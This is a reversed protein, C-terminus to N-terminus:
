GGKQLIGSVGHIISPITRFVALGFGAYLFGIIWPLVSDRIDSYWGFDFDIYGSQTLITYPIHFSLTSPVTINDFFNKFTTYGTTSVTVFEYTNSDQVSAELRDTDLPETIYNIASAIPEFLSVMNNYFTNISNKIADIILGLYYQLTQAIFNGVNQINTVINGIAGILNSGLWSLYNYISEATDELSSFDPTPPTTWTYNNITLQPVQTPRAHGTPFFPEDITDPPTAHGTPIVVPQEPVINTLVVYNGSSDKLEDLGYLLFPYHITTTGYANTITNHTGFINVSGDFQNSGVYMNSITRDLNLNMTFDRGGPSVVIQSSTIDFNEYQGDNAFSTSITPNPIVIVQIFGENNPNPADNLFLLAKTFDTTPYYPQVNPVFYSEYVTVVTEIDMCSNLGTHNPVVFPLDYNSVDSAHSTFSLLFLCFFLFFIWSFIMLKEFFNNRDFWNM